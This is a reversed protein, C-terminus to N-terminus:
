EELLPIPCSLKSALKYVHCIYGIGQPTNMFTHAAKRAKKMTNFMEVGQKTGNSDYLIVMFKTSKELDTMPKEAQGHLNATTAMKDEKIKTKNEWNKAPVRWASCGTCNGVNAYHSCTAEKNEKCFGSFFFLVHPDRYKPKRGSDCTKVSGGYYYSIPIGADYKAQWYTRYEVSGPMPCYNPTGAIRYLINSTVFKTLHWSDADENYYELKIGKDFLVQYYRTAKTSVIM